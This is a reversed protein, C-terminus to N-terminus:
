LNKRSVTYHVPYFSVLYTDYIVYPLFKYSDKDIPWAQQLLQAGGYWPVVDLDITDKLYHLAKPKKWIFHYVDIWNSEQRLQIKLHSNDEYNVDIAKEEVVIKTAKCSLSEGIYLQLIFNSPTLIKAKQGNENIELSGLKAM